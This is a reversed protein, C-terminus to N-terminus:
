LVEFLNQSPPHQFTGTSNVQPLRAPEPESVSEPVSVSEPISVSQFCYVMSLVMEM